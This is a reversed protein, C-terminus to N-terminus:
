HRQIAKSALKTGTTMLDSLLHSCKPFIISEYTFKPVFKPKLHFFSSEIGQTSPKADAVECMEMLRQCEVRM